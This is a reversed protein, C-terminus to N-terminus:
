CLKAIFLSTFVILAINIVNRNAFANCNDESCSECEGAYTNCFNTDNQSYTSKCKQYRGGTGGNKNVLGCEDKQACYESYKAISATEGKNKPCDRNDLGSCVVCKIRGETTISSACPANSNSECLDCTKPNNLCDNYERDTNICGRVM